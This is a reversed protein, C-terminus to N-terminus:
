SPTSTFRTSTSSHFQHGIAIADNFSCRDMGGCNPPKSPKWRSGTSIVIRFFPLFAGVPIVPFPTAKGSKGPVVNADLAILPAVDAADGGAVGIRGSASGCDVAITNEATDSFGVGGFADRGAAM